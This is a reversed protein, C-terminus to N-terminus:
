SRSGVADVTGCRTTRDCRTVIRTFLADIRLETSIAEIITLFEEEERKARDLKEVLQAQELASAALRNFTRPINRLADITRREVRFSLNSFNVHNPTSTNCV